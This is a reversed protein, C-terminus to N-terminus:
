SWKRSFMALGQAYHQFVHLSLYTTSDHPVLGALLPQDSFQIHLGRIQSELDDKDKIFKWPMQLIKTEGTWIDLNFIQGFVGGSKWLWEVVSADHCEFAIVNAV